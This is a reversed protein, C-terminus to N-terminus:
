LAPKTCSSGGASQRGAAVNGPGGAADLRAGAQSQEIGRRVFHQRRGGGTAVVRNPGAVRCPTRQISAKEREADELDAILQQREIQTVEAIISPQVTLATLATTDLENKGALEANIRAVRATQKALEVATSQFDGKADAAVMLPDSGRLRLLDFGEALTVADRVTMGFRFPYAGPKMVDGGVYVPRYEAVEVTVEPRRVVNKEIL